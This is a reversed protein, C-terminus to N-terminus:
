VHAPANHPAARAGVGTLLYDLVDSATYSVRNGLFAGMSLLGDGSTM